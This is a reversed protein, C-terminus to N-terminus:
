SLRPDTVRGVFLVAGNTDDRILFVFPRDVHFPVPTPPLSGVGHFEFTASAAETGIEDVSVSVKQAVEGIFLQWRAPAIATFNAREANFAATIGLRELAPRLSLRGTEIRFRPLQLDVYRSSLGRLCVDLRPQLCEQETQALGRRRRPLLVFMSFQGGRYPLEVIRTDKRRAFALDGDRAMMPVLVRERGQVWFARRRTAEPDFEEMWRARFYLTSALVLANQASFADPGVARRIRHATRSGIWANVRKAAAVPVSFDLREIPSHYIQALWSVFRRAIPLQKSTFICNASMVRLGRKRLRQWRRELVGLAAHQRAPALTHSLAARMESLTSGGAGASAMGLAIGASAPSFALNGDQHRLEQYASAGFTNTTAAAARREVASPPKTHTFAPISAPLKASAAAPASTPRIAV